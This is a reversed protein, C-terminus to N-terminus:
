ASRVRRSGKQSAEALSRGCAPCRHRYKGAPIFRLGTDRGPHAPRCTILRGEITVDESLGCDPCALLERDNTFLGLAHQQRRLAAVQRALPAIALLVAQASRASKM